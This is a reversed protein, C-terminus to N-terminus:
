VQKFRRELSILARVLIITSESRAGIREWFKFDFHTTKGTKFQNRRCIKKENRNKMSEEFRNRVLKKRFSHLLQSEDQPAKRDGYLHLRHHAKSSWSIFEIM